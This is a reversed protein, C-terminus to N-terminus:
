YADRMIAVCVILALSGRGRLHGARAGQRAGCQTQCINAQAKFFGSSSHLSLYTQLSVDEQPCRACFFTLNLCVGSVNMSVFAGHMCINTVLFSLDALHM